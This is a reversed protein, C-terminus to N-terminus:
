QKYRFVFPFSRHWSHHHPPRYVSPFNLVASTQQHTCRTSVFLIHTILTLVSKSAAKACSAWPLGSHRYCQYLHWYGARIRRRFGNRLGSGPRRKAGPYNVFPLYASSDHDSERFSVCSCVPTSITSSQSKCLSSLKNDALALVFRKQTYPADFFCCNLLIIEFSM